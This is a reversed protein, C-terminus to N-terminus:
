ALGSLGEGHGLWEERRAHRLVGVLSLFRQVREVVITAEQGPAGWRSPIWRFGQRWYRVIPGEVPIWRRVEGGDAHDELFKLLSWGRQQGDGCPHMIVWLLSRPNPGAQFSMGILLKREVKGAEALLMRIPESSPGLHM